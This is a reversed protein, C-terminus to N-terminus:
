LLNEKMIVYLVKCRKMEQLATSNFIRCRLYGQIPPPPLSRFGKLLSSPISIVNRVVNGLLFSWKETM